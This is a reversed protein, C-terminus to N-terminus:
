EDDEDDHSSLQALVQIVGNLHALRPGFRDIFESLMFEGYVLDEKTDSIEDVMRELFEVQVKSLVEASERCRRALGPNADKWQNLEQSRQKQQTAMASVLEELLENTRDQASLVEKLLENQEQAPPLISHPPAGTSVDVQSFLPALPRPNEPM